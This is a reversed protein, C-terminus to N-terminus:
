FYALYECDITYQEVPSCRGAHTRYLSKACLNDIVILMKSKHIEVFVSDRVDTTSVSLFLITCKQRRM